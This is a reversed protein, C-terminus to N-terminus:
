KYAISHSEAVRIHALYLRAHRGLAHGATVYHLCATPLDTFFFFSM